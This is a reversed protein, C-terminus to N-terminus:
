FFHLKIKKTDIDFHKFKKTNSAWVPRFDTIYGYIGYMVLNGDDQFILYCHTCDFISEALTIRTNNSFITLKCKKFTLTFDNEIKIYDGISMRFGIEFSSVCLIIFILGKM